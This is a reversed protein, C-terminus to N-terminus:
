LKFNWKFPYQVSEFQLSEWYKQAVLHVQALVCSDLRSFLKTEFNLCLGVNKFCNFFANANNKLKDCSWSIKYLNYFTINFFRIKCSRFFKFQKLFNPTEWASNKAGHSVSKHTQPELGSNKGSTVNNAQLLNSVHIQVRSHGQFKELSNSYFNTITKSNM